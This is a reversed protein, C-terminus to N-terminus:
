ENKSEKSNNSFKVAESAHTGVMNEWRKEASDLSMDQLKDWMPPKVTSSADSLVGAKVASALTISATASKVILQDASM